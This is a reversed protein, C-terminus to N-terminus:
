PSRAVLSRRAGRRRRATGAAGRRFRVGRRAAAEGARLILSGDTLDAGARLDVEGDRLVIGRGLDRDGGGGRGKPGARWSDVWAWADDSAWVIARGAAALATMLADADSYGLREAVEDQYQLLLRDTARGSVRHLEIRIALVLDAAPRTLEPPETVPGAVGLAHIVRLDRLGGNAQKLDPELLHAVDGEKVHRERTIAELGAVRRKAAGVWRERVTALVRAGLDLDGVVPRGDLLSLVVRLDDDAVAVAEKPSRVSHDLAIGADWIPYWLREAVESCDRRGDHLLLLDLDSGPALERRGLAGGAVVVVEPEDGLLDGIWQDVLDSYRAPSPM